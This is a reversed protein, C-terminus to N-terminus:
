DRKIECDEVPYVIGANDLSIFSETGTEFFFKRNTIKDEGCIVPAGNKFALYIERVKNDHSDVRWEYLWLAGFIAAAVKLIQMKTEHTIKELRAALLTLVVALLLLGIVIQM